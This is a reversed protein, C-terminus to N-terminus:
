KEKGRGNSLAPQSAMFRKRVQASANLQIAVEKLTPRPMRQLAQMRRVLWPPAAVVKPQLALPHSAQWESESRHCGPHEALPSSFAIRYCSLADSSSVDVHFFDAQKTAPDIDDSWSLTEVIIWYGAGPSRACPKNFVTLEHALRDAEVLPASQNCTKLEATSGINNDLARRLEATKIALCGAMGPSIEPEVTMTNQRPKDLTLM